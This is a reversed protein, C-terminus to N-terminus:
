IMNFRRTAWYAKHELEVPLHCAKGFVLRYPSMGILTKFATQYAWLADDIKKAWDKRSRTMTKELITKIEKNSVEEQGNTHPHYALATKHCVGHKLLLKEVLRNCFYSSEDSVLAKPTGFRNFINRRLFNIVVKADNTYISIAEVWKSVYNVAFLIYKNNYSFPFPGIFDIGWVDFLEVELIGKLPGEYRRSNNDMRQCKDCTSVFVNAHKFLSPWYFGSQLVKVATGNGGFHGGYELSHCHILINEM